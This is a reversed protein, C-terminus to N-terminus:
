SAPMSPRVPRMPCKLGCQGCGMVHAALLAPTEAWQAGRTLLPEAKSKSRSFVTCAYGATLLHGVMSSGMVGTGIWGIRTTEPSIAAPAMTMTGNIFSFFNPSHCQGDVSEM